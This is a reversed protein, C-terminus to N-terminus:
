YSDPSDPSSPPNPRPPPPRDCAKLLTTIAKRQRLLEQRDMVFQNVNCGSRRFIERIGQAETDFMVLGWALKIQLWAQLYSCTVKPNPPIYREPSKDGKSMNERGNVSLLHYNNAMFNGYMCRSKFDWRWAGSEYAQKLPVVHDIQIDKSAIFRRGSYPDDWTGSDVVCRNNARFTVPTKSDRVLIRARTNLCSQGTPDGVWSGFHHQRLYKESPTPPASNHQLWRTLPLVVAQPISSAWAQTLETPGSFGPRLGSGRGEDITFYQNSGGATGPPSLQGQLTQLDSLAASASASTFGLAVFLSLQFFAIKHRFSM